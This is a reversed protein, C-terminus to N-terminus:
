PRQNKRRVKWFSTLGFWAFTLTFCIALVVRGAPARGAAYERYEHVGAFGGFAAMTLFVSGTVELWLQHGANKFSRATTRAASSLANYTRSRGVQQGAVRAVVGFKRLASVKSVVEIKVAEPAVIACSSRAFSSFRVTGERGQM